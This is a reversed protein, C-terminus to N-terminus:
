VEASHTHTFMVYAYIHTCVYSTHMFIHVYMDCIVNASVCVSVSLCVSVSESVCVSMYVCVVCVCWSVSESV